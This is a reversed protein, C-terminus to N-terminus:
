RNEAKLLNELIKELSREFTAAEDANMGEYYIETMKQSVAAYKDKLARGESSCSIIWVRRDKPSPERVLFGASELRDVMSTLTSSELATEAALEGMSLGRDGRWLAFLIRGQSPNIDIGGAERLLRAFVRGGVQHVKAVLFGGQSPLPKPQQADSM